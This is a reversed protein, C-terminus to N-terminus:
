YIVCQLQDYLLCVAKLPGGVAETIRVYEAKSPGWCCSCHTLVRSELPDGTAIYHTLARSQYPGGVFAASHLNGTKMLAGFLLQLTYTSQKWLPGWCCSCHTFVKNEFPDGRAATINLYEVKLPDESAERMRLYHFAVFWSWFSHTLIKELFNQFSGM